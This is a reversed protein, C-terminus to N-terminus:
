PGQIGTTSWNLILVEDAGTDDRNYDRWFTGLIKHVMGRREIVFYQEFTM